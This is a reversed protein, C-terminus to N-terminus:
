GRPREPEAATVAAPSSAPSAPPSTVRRMARECSQTVQAVLADFRADYAGPLTRIVLDAPALGGLVRRRVIERLRRKLRNREVSGHKYKPVVFGVRAYPLLSAIARVELHETRVRKGERRVADL